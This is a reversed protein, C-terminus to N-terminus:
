CLTSHQFNRQLINCFIFLHLSLVLHSEARVCLSMDKKLCTSSTYNRKIVHHCQQKKLCNGLIKRQSTPKRYYKLALVWKCKTKGCYTLPIVDVQSGRREEEEGTTRGETEVEQWRDQTQEEESALMLLQCLPHAPKRRSAYGCQQPYVASQGSASSFGFNPYYVSFLSHKIIPLQKM